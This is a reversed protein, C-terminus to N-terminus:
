QVLLSTEVRRNAPDLEDEGLIRTEGHGRAVLKSTDVGLTGLYTVVSAARRESLEKNYEESGSADTFGDIAINASALQPLRLAEAFVALNSKAEESLVDSNKAFTMNLNYGERKQGTAGCEEESGVCIGRTAEQSSFYKLIDQVTYDAASAMTSGALLFAGSFFMLSARM